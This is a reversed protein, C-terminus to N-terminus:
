YEWLDHEMTFLENKLREAEFLSAKGVTYENVTRDNFVNSEGWIIGGFRRQMFLDDFSIRQADNNPVFAENKALIDRVEDFKVWFLPKRLARQLEPDIGM